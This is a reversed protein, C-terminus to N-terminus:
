QEKAMAAKIAERATPWNKGANWGCMPVDHGNEDAHFVRCCEGDRSWAIRAGHAAMFDLMESDRAMAVLADREARSITVSEGFPKCCTPRRAIAELAEKDM